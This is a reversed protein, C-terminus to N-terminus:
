SEYTIKFTWVFQDAAAIAASGALTFTGDGNKTLTVAHGHMSGGVITVKDGKLFPLPFGISVSSSPAALLHIYFAGPTTTFRVNDTGPSRTWYRTGFLSEAHANIWKGATLLNTQM